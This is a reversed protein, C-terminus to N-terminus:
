WASGVNLEQMRLLLAGLGGERSAREREAFTKAWDKSGNFGQQYANWIAQYEDKCDPDACNRFVINHKTCKRSQIGDESHANDVSDGVGDEGDQRDLLCRTTGGQMLLAVTDPPGEARRKRGSAASDEDAGAAGAAWILQAYEVGYGLLWTRTDGIEQQYDERKEMRLIYEGLLTEIDRFKDLDSKSILRRFYEKEDLKWYCLKFLYMLVHFNFQFVLVHRWNPDMTWWDKMTGGRETIAQESLNGKERLLGNLIEVSLKHNADGAHSDLMRSVSVLQIRLFHDVLDMLRMQAAKQVEDM